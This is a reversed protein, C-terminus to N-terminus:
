RDWLALEWLALEWLALPLVVLSLLDEPLRGDGLRPLVRNGSSLL